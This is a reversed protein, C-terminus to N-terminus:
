STPTSLTGLNPYQHQLRPQTQKFRPTRHAQSREDRSAHTEGHFRLSSTSGSGASIYNCSEQSHATSGNATADNLRSPTVMMSCLIRAPTLSRISTCTACAVASSMPLVSIVSSSQSLRTGFFHFVRFRQFELPEPHGHPPYSPRFM